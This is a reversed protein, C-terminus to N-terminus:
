SAKENAIVKEIIFRPRGKVQEYIGGIYAGIFGMVILQVGGFLLLLIAMTTWGSPISKDVLYSGVVFLIMLFSLASFSIGIFIGIHLPKASFSLIGAGALQLIRTLSYKSSGAFRKEAIFEVYAQNFGIWTFLGRLFMNREQFDQTLIEAVRRSILRFDAANPHIPITSISSLVKYFINGLFRRVLNVEETDKRITYVVDNGRRYEEILKPIIEPPHQLDSDMMIIIDSENAYEIGALLSMQHGFRSSLALVVVRKDQEAIDSLLKLSNDRSRDLVYVVRIVLSAEKELTDIIKKLRSYFFPIVQEENYVPAVITISNIPINM